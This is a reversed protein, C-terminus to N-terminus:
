KFITFIYNWLSFHSKIVITAIYQMKKRKRNKKVDMATWPIFVYRSIFTICFASIRINLLLTLWRKSKQVLLHCKHMSFVSEVNAKIIFEGNNIITVYIFVWFQSEASFLKQLYPLIYYYLIIKIDQHFIVLFGM